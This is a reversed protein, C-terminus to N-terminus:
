KVSARYRVFATSGPAFPANFAWRIHRYEDPRATRVSGSADRVTLESARKFDKGDLSYTIATGVGMASDVVYSMQEPVPNAIVIDAAAVSCINHATVTWVVDSGPVVKAAPILRMAKQGQENVYEQEVEATAKLEICGKDQAFAAHAATLALIALVSAGVQRNSKSATMNM